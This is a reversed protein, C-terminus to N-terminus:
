PMVFKFPRTTIRHTKFCSPVGHGGCYGGHLTFSINRAGSGPLIEYDRVDDSFVTRMRGGPLTVLIDLQCGGSGCYLTQSDACEAGHYSILYDDRGDGILDFARVADAPFTLGSGGSANCDKTADQLVQRVGAPYADPSVVKAAEPPEAAAHRVASLNSVLAAALVIMM